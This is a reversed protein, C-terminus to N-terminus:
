LFSWQNAMAKAIGRYTRSRKIWRDKSPSLKNQGSDTQNAWRPKGDVYRPSIVFTPKLLPLDKLWLGTKKSANRGFQYPQIWQTAPGIYSPLCGVPNEICIYPIPAAWLAMVFEAAQETRQQRQPHKQSLHLGSACLYTCPPHAIMMDWGDNIIDLVNGQHHPGKSSETGMLDCSVANHGLKIFADRVRGSYECAILIKM